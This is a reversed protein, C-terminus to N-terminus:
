DDSQRADPESAGPKATERVKFLMGLEDFDVLELRRLTRRNLPLAAIRERVVTAQQQSAPPMFDGLFLVYDASQFVLERRPHKLPLVSHPLLQYKARLAFYKHQAPDSVLVIRDVGDSALETNLRSLWPYYLGLEDDGLRADLSLSALHPASDLFQKSRNVLWQTDLLLWALLGTAVLLRWREDGRYRWWVAAMALLMWCAVLLPLWLLQQEAGGTRVHASRQTWPEFQFWQAPLLRLSSLLGPQRLSAQRLLPAARNADIFVFGVEVVEGTWESAASLDVLEEGDLTIRSVQRTDGARRWFFAPSEDPYVTAPDVDLGLKLLPYLGADISVPGSSLLALGDQFQDVRVGSDLESGGGMMFSLNQANLPIAPAPALSRPQTALWALLGACSLLTALLLPLRLATLRPRPASGPAEAVGVTPGPRLSRALLVLCFVVAPYVQLPLRNIATYDQAWAGERSFVFIAVQSAVLVLL